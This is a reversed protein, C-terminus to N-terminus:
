RRRAAPFGEHPYRRTSRPGDTPQVSVGVAPATWLDLVAASASSNAVIIMPKHLEVASEVRYPPGM